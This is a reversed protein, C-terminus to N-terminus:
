CAMRALHGALRDPDSLFPSHGTEMRVVDTLDAAMREQDVAPIMRDETCIVFSAPVGAHNDGLSIAERHPGSPEHRIQPLAWDMDAQSAGNYLVPGAGETDFCYSLRDKAVVLPLDAREGTLAQMRQGLRDGNAPRLAAVYILRSVREPAQEAAASISFGGASHGVLVAQGEYASLIAEAQDKLTLGAVGGGRGPMDVARVAHGRSELAPIVDRWCWAGHCAGHVLIFQAM